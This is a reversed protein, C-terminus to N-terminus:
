LRVFLIIYIIKEKIEGLIYIYLFTKNLNFLLFYFFM